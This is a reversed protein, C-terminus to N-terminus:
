RGVPPGGSIRSNIADINAGLAEQQTDRFGRAITSAEAGRGGRLAINEQIQDAPNGSMQGRSMPVPVPLSEGLARMAADQPRIGQAIQRTIQQQVPPALNDFNAGMADLTERALQIGAAPDVQGAGVRNAVGQAARAAVPAAAGM